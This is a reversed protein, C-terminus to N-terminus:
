AVAVVTKGSGVDGELLRSMPVNRGIDALLGDIAQRQDATLKFPLSQIFGERVTEPMQLTSAGGTAQLERRRGVVGLEINLLEEFAFRRTAAEAGALSDPFHVERLAELVPPLEM